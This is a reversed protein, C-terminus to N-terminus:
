VSGKVCRTDKGADKCSEFTLKKGVIAAKVDMAKKQLANPVAAGFKGLYLIESQDLGLTYVEGKLSNKAALDAIYAIALDIRKVATTLVAKPAIDLQDVTNGFAYIGKEQATELVVPSAADLWQYIVDNGSAIFALAAEKAKAADNWDGTYSATVQISPKM